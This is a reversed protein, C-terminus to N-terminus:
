ICGNNANAYDHIATGVQRLNSLCATRRSMSRARSVTPLLIAVLIAIIGIVVLLEVLTFAGPKGAAFRRCFTAPPALGRHVARGRALRLPAVSPGKAGVRESRRPGSAMWM